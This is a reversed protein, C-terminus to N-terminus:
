VLPEGSEDETMSALAAPDWGGGGNAIVHKTKEWNIAQQIIKMAVDPPLDDHHLTLSGAPTFQTAM